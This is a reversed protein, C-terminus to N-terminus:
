LYWCRGQLALYVTWDVSILCQQTKNKNITKRNGLPFLTRIYTKDGHCCKAFTKAKDDKVMIKHWSLARVYVQTELLYTFHTLFFFANFIKLYM